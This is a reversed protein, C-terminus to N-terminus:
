NERAQAACRAVVPLRDRPADQSGGEGNVREISKKRM